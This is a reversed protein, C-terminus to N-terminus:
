RAGFPQRFEGEKVEAAMETQLKELGSEDLHLIQLAEPHIIHDVLCTADAADIPTLANAINVLSPLDRQTRALSPAHHYRIADQLAIPFQWQDAMLGGVAAHDIGFMLEEVQWLRLNRQAMVAVMQQYDAQVFQDLVLKGMDHLLGAVYAEEPDPYSFKNALWHAITAAAISHNWLAGDGLRYGNLRKTLPGAAAMSLVLLRIRQFGLRMVAERVSSSSLSYGLYASNAVRLIYATLAQDLSILSAILGADAGPSELTRLLRSVNNPLPRM